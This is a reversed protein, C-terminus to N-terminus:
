YIPSSFATHFGNLKRFCRISGPFHELSANSLLAWSMILNRQILKTSDEYLSYLSQMNVLHKQIPSHTLTIWLRWKLVKGRQTWKMSKKQLLSPCSTSFPIINQNLIKDEFFFISKKEGRSIKLFVLTIVHRRKPPM